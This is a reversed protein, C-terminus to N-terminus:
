QQHKAQNKLHGIPITTRPTTCKLSILSCPFQLHPSLSLSLPPPPPSSSSFLSTTFYLSYFDSTSSSTSFFVLMSWFIQNLLLQNTSESIPYISNFHSILLFSSTLYDISTIFLVHIHHQWVRQIMPTWTDANGAYTLCHKALLAELLLESELFSRELTVCYCGRTIPHWRKKGAMRLMTFIWIM